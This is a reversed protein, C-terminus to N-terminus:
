IKVVKIIIKKKFILIKTINQDQNEIVIFVKLGKFQLTKNKYNLKTKHYIM